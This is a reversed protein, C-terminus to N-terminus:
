PFPVIDAVSPIKDEINGANDNVKNDDDADKDNDNTAEDGLSSPPCDGRSFSLRDCDTSGQVNIELGSFVIASFGFLLVLFFISTLGDALSLM